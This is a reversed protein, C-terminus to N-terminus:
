FEDRPYLVDHVSHTEICGQLETLIIGVRRDLAKLHPEWLVPANKSVPDSAMSERMLESLPNPGNHFRLLIKLTSTRIMCCQVLPALNALEDYFARGFGRGNDYHITFTNEGFITFTEYHHRDMNGSLFDFIAMDILDLLRRGKNYPPQTKVKKCYKPDLEWIAKSYPNYAKRWPHKIRDNRIGLYDPFYAIVSAELMGNVGCVPHYIDCYRRCTGYFCKNSYPQLSTFFTNRLKKESRDYVESTMNLIRGTVPFARRFGLLRDLHFAAIDATHREYDAYLMSNELTQQERPFRMPKSVALMGNDFHMKMKIQTGGAKEEVYSIKRTAMERILADITKSDEAYLENQKIKYNFKDLITWNENAKVSLLYGLTPSEIKPTKTSSDKMEIYDIAAQLDTFHNKPSNLVNGVDDNSSSSRADIFQRFNGIKKLEINRKLNTFIGTDGDDIQEGQYQYNTQNSIEDPKPDNEQSNKTPEIDNEPLQLYPARLNLGSEIDLVLFFTIAVLSTGFLIAFRDRSHRM